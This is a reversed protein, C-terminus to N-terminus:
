VDGIQLLKWARAVASGSLRVDVNRIVRAMKLLDPEPEIWVSVIVHPPTFPQPTSDGTLRLPFAALIASM